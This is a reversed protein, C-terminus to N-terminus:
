AELVASKLGIFGPSGTRFLRRAMWL